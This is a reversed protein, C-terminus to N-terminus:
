FFGLVRFLGLSKGKVKFIFLFFFCPCFLFFIVLGFFCSTTKGEVRAMVVFGRRPHAGQTAQGGHRFVSRSHRHAIAAVLHPPPHTVTPSPEQFM